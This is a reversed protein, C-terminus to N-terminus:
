ARSEEFPLQARVVFGGGAANGAQLDGGYLTARERMGVLGHGGGNRNVAGRGDDEVKLRLEGDGYRVVVDARGAGAHRLTNTLAEQVIRYASIDVGAPLQRPQGEIRLEVPLGAERVREVLAELHALGPQPALTTDDDEERLMGLLRRMETLAQRGTREISRLVERTSEAEDRLALREAGAQVVMVTVSHAVVDHLERAIRAREHAIALRASEHQERELVETRSQLAAALRQRDRFLRGALWVGVFFPGMVILDGAEVVLAATLALLLGAIARPREAYAAVSYAALVLGLLTSQAQQESNDLLAEAAWASNVVMATGLPALRRWALPVTMLLGSSVAIAKPTTVDTGWVELQVFAALALALAIDLLPPRQRSVWSV